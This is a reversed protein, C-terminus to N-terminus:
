GLHGGVQLPETIGEHAGTERRAGDPRGRRVHDASGQTGTKQLNAKLRQVYSQTPADWLQNVFELGEIGFQERAIRPFDLNTILRSQIARHLSWEALSIRFKPEAADAAKIATLASVPLTNRLFERRRM